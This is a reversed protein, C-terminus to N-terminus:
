LSSSNSKGFPNYQGVGGFYKEFFGQEQGFADTKSQNIIIEQGDKKSLRTIDVVNNNDDFKITLIDRSVEEPAFFAVQKVESSMYIWTNKDFSVINSPAGLLRIIENKSNGEEIRSIRENTPMNGNHTIFWENTKSTSCASLLAVVSVTSIIKTISM